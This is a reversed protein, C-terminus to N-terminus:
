SQSSLPAKGRSFYLAFEQSFFTEEWSVRPSPSGQVIPTGPWLSLCDMLGPVQSDFERFQVESGHKEWSGERALTRFWSIPFEAELDVESRPM